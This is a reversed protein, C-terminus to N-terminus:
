LRIKGTDEAICWARELLIITCDDIIQYRMANGDRRARVIRQDVLRQLQNSIAPLKMGLQRAIDSVSSDPQRVLCHLIRLRTDNALVKFLGVIHAADVQNLQPRDAINPKGPCCDTNLM